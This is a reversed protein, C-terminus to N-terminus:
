VSASGQTVLFAGAEHRRYGKSCLARVGVEIGGTNPAKRILSARDSVQLAVTGCLDGRVFEPQDSTPSVPDRESYSFLLVIAPLIASV